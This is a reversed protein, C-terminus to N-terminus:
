HHQITVLVLKMHVHICVHQIYKNSSPIHRHLKVYVLTLKKCDSRHCTACCGSISRGELDAATRGVWMM